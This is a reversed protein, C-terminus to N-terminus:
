EWTFTIKQTADIEMREGETTIYVTFQTTTAETVFGEEDYTYNFDYYIFGGEKARGQVGSPLLISNRGAKRMIHAYLEPMNISSTTMLSYFVGFDMSMRNIYENNDYIFNTPLLKQNGLDWQTLNGISNFTYGNQSVPTNYIAQLYSNGSYVWKPTEGPNICHNVRNEKLILTFYDQFGTQHSATDVVNMNAQFKITEASPYEIAFYDVLQDNNEPIVKQVTTLADGEYTFHFEYYVNRNGPLGNDYSFGTLKRDTEIIVYDKEITLIENLTWEGEQEIIVKYDGGELDPVTFKIENGGTAIEPAEVQSKIKEGRLYLNLDSAFGEGSITLTNGAKATTQQLIANRFPCIDMEEQKEEEDSCAAFLSVSCVIFLRWWINKM